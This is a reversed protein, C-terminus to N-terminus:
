SDDEGPDAKRSVYGDVWDDSRAMDRIFAAAFLPYHEVGDDDVSINSREFMIRRHFRDDGITKSLSPAERDRGSKVEIAATESGLDIVFDLEM